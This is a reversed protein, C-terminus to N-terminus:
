NPVAEMAEKFSRMPLGNAKCFKYTGFRETVLRAEREPPLMGAKQLLDIMQGNFLDLYQLRGSLQEIEKIVSYRVAPDLPLSHTLAILGQETQNNAWNMNRITELSTYHVALQRRIPAELRQLTGDGVAAEWAATDYEKYPMRLVFHIRSARHIPLPEMVAGSALVRDRVRALQAQMCPYVTRFEVAFSYHRSLEERLATKTAEVKRRWTREDAWQQATLAILVGLTVIALEWAVASWGHPPKLKLLRFM